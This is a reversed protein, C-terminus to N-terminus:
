RGRTLDRIADADVKVGARVLAPRLSRRCGSRLRRQGATDPWWWWDRPAIQRCHMEADAGEDVRRM